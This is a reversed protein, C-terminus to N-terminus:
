TTCARASVLGAPDVDFGSSEDAKSRLSRATSPSLTESGSATARVDAEDGKRGGRGNSLTAWHGRRLALRPAARYAELLGDAGGRRGRRDFPRWYRHADGRPEVWAPHERELAAGAVLRDPRQDGALLQLATGFAAPRTAAGAMVVLLDLVLEAV